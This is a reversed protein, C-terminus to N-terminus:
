MKENRLLEKEIFDALYRPSYEPKDSLQGNIKTGYLKIEALKEMLKKKPILAYNQRLQQIAEKVDELRVWQKNNFFECNRDLCQYCRDVDMNFANCTEGLRDSIDIVEFGSKAKQKLREELERWVDSM